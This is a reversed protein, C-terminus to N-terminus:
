FLIYVFIRQDERTICGSESTWGEAEFMHMDGGKGDTRRCLFFESSAQGLLVFCFVFSFFVFLESLIRQRKRREEM